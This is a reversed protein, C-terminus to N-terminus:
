KISDFLDNLDRASEKDEEPETPTSCVGRKEDLYVIAGEAAVAIGLLALGAFVFFGASAWALTAAYPSEIVEVKQEYRHWVHDYEMSAFPVKMSDNIRIPAVIAAVFCIIAAVRLAIVTAPTSKTIFRNDM